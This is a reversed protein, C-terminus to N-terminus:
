GGAGRALFRDDRDGALERDIEPAEAGALELRGVEAQVALADLLRFCYVASLVVGGGLGLVQM